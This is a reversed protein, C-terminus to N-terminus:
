RKGKVQQRARAAAAHATLGEARAITDATTSLRAAADANLGIVPTIKVFDSVNLGSAFRATGSTPLSHSPGAVYDGLVEFSYEGLFVAGANRVKGLWASPERVSLQLHEPAYTNAVEFAEELSGTIVAGGRGALSEAAFGSRSLEELQRGIQMAVQEALPRSPTVLIASALVDHEAQALLDAAVLAPDADEDAIVVTETPGLLGDIGVAGYVQQKALTVFLNGPGVIKDVRPVSATGYALAAIAQAGGLKYVKDIGAVHAAALVISPIAGDPGPPTTAIIDKVGAVQAPIACMLLTSPLPATGGPVYVGVREIPLVLQGLMGEDSPQMWPIIPQRKHFAEIREASLRLAAMDEDSTEAVAAEIEEPTAALEDLAVGDLRGTWERLADDGRERVDAIIRAVAQPPTLAEGFIAEAREKMGATVDIDNVPRRRLIGDRATELDYLRFLDSM